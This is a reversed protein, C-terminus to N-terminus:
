LFAVSNDHEELMVWADDCLLAYDGKQSSAYAEVAFVDQDTPGELDSLDAPKVTGM